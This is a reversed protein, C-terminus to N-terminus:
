IIISNNTGIHRTANSTDEVVFWLCVPHCFYIIVVGHLCHDNTGGCRKIGPM